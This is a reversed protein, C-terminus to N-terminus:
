KPNFEKWIFLEDLRKNVKKRVLKGNQEIVKFECFEELEEKRFQAYYLNASEIKVDESLKKEVTSTTFSVNFDETYLLISDEVISNYFRCVIERSKARLSDINQMFISSVDTIEIRYTSSQPQDCEDNEYGENGFPYDFRFLKVSLGKESFESVFALEKKTYPRVCDDKTITAEERCSFLFVLFLLGYKM